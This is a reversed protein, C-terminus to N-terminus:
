QSNSSIQVIHRFPPKLCEFVEANVSDADWFFSSGQLETDSIRRRISDIEMSSIQRCTTDASSVDMTFPLESLVKLLLEKDASYEFYSTYHGTHYKFKLGTTEDLHLEKIAHQPLSDHISTSLMLPPIEHVGTELVPKKCAGLAFLFLIASLILFPRMM